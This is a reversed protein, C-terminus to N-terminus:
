GPRGSLGPLWLPQRPPFLKGLKGQRRPPSDAATAPTTTGTGLALALALLLLLLLVVAGVEVVTGRTSVAM